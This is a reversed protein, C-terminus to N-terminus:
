PVQSGHVPVRKFVANPLFACFSALSLTAPSPPRDPPAWPQPGRGGATDPLAGTGSPSCRAREWLPM